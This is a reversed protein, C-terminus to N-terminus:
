TLRVLSRNGAGPLTRFVPSESTSFSNQLVSSVFVWQGQVAEATITVVLYGRRSTEAYKLDPMMSVFADALFQRGIKLHAIELGTSTVSPTAFEVGVANGSADRLNNAWANHSDGSIVVLNKNRTRAASLVRERATEFGDWTNLDHAILPQSVLARQRESRSAAPAAVAQLYENITDETTNDFVSLPLKMRGFLVQQGLLQWTANSAQMREALWAEQTTGLLQRAPEASAGALYADRGLPADRGVVRTDLMHLSLLNGFDFSRYITFLDPLTSTRTPLWEHFAQVAAARRAAFSGETAPDHGGAGDRWTDNVIEHDDWVPIVPVSAHFARLDSDTHYQAYRARYESLLHLEGKPDMKRDILTAAIQEADSLGTEYIYDGLLLAVDLDGRDAAASYVHFQGLPFAACSFAGIVVKSVSGVPLTKTRGTVSTEIGHRFRYYHVTAPSLGTVDVKVTFDQASGTVASGTRVIRAFAADTAVDWQVTTPDAGANNVRTWLVVRDSLPDGSAVGYGFREYAEQAGGGCGSVGLGAGVTLAMGASGLVFRRRTDTFQDMAM